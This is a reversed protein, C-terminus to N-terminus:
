LRLMKMLYMRLEEKVGFTFDLHGFDYERYSVAVGQPSDGPCYM